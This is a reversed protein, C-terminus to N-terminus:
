AAKAAIAREVEPLLERRVVAMPTEDFWNLFWRCGAPEKLLQDCEFCASAFYEEVEGVTNLGEGQWGAYGLACAAECPWDKVTMSPAPVTTVEQVLRKDESFLARRLADLAAVSLFPVMGNRFTKRWAEM